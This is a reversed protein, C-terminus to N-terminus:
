PPAITLKRNVVTDRDNEVCNTSILRDVETVRKYRISSGIDWSPFRPLIAACCLLLM